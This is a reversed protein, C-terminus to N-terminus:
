KIVRDARVLVNPPITLGIEKAAKLNIVFEFKTPQEVPLDAPKTGKLIKDVYTAARRYLDPISTAYTMLGGALVYEQETYMAPLRHKAALAIIRTRHTGFLGSGGTMFADVRRKTISRFANDLEELSRVELSLLQVKLFRAAGEVEKFSLAQGPDASNWMVAVRTAKPVTEKLLELRKGALDTSISTLGTVNGGPRALSTVFGAQVPDGPNGMVIPITNTAQKAVRTPSGGAAFICDVKLDVLEAALEPLRDLKGEASRYEIVINKGEVYGLERLGQCFADLRPALSSLSATSLFGIRPVKKTQEAEAPLCPAFLMACLTLVAIKIKMNKGRDEDSSV